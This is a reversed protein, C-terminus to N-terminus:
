PRSTTNKYRRGSTSTPFILAIAFINQVSFITSLLSVSASVSKDHLIIGFLIHLNTRHVNKLPLRFSIIHLEVRNTIAAITTCTLVATWLTSIKPEELFNCISVKPYRSSNWSKSTNEWYHFISVPKPYFFYKQPLM